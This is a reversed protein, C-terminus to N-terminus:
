DQDLDAIENEDGGMSQWFNKVVTEAYKKREEFNLSSAKSRMENLNLILNEFSFDDEANSNEDDVEKPDDGNPIREKKEIKSEKKVVETEKIKNPHNESKLRMNSWTHVFFLNILEDLSTFDSEDNDSDDQIKITDQNLDLKIELFNEFQNLFSKVRERSIKDSDNTILINLCNEKSKFFNECSKSNSLLELDANQSILFFVGELNDELKIVDLKAEIENFQFIELSLDSDYYKTMINIEFLNENEKTKPNIKIQNPKNKYTENTTFENNLIQFMKKYENASGFAIIDSHNTLNAM